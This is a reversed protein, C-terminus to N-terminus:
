SASTACPPSRHAGPQERGGRQDRPRQLRRCLIRGPIEVSCAIEVSGAVPRRVSHRRAGGEEAHGVLVVHRKRGVCCDAAPGEVRARRSVCEGESLSQGEVAGADDDVTAAGGNCVVENEVEQVFSKTRLKKAALEAPLAVMVFLKMRLKKSALEAPLAVTVFL